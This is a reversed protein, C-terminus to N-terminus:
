GRSGRSRLGPSGVPWARQRWCNRPEQLCHRRLSAARWGANASRIPKVPGRAPLNTRQVTLALRRAHREIGGFLLLQDVSVLGMGGVGTRRLNLHRHQALADRLEAAVQLLVVVVIGRSLTQQLHDTASLTQEAIHPSLAFLAVGAEDGFQTDATSGREPIQM